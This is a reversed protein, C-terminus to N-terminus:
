EYKPDKWEKVSYTIYRNWKNFLEIIELKFDNPLENLIDYMIDIENPNLINYVNNNLMERYTESFKSFLKQRYKEHYMKLPRDKIPVINTGKIRMMVNKLMHSKYNSTGVGGFMAPLNNKNKNFEDTAYKM